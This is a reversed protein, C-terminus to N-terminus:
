IMMRVLWSNKRLGELWLLISWCCIAFVVIAVLIAAAFGHIFTDWQLTIDHFMRKQSFIVFCVKLRLLGLEGYRYRPSVEKDSYYEFALLLRSFSEWTIRDQGVARTSGTPVLGTQQALFFDSETVILFSYTRMFGISAQRLSSSQSGLYQWFAYSLLYPPIPKVFIRNNDWVLHLQPDETM